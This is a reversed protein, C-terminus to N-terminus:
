GIKSPQRGSLSAQALLVSHRVRQTDDAPAPILLLTAVLAPVAEWAVPALRWLLMASYRRQRVGYESDDEDVLLESVRPVIRRAIERPRGETALGWFSGLSYLAACRWFRM